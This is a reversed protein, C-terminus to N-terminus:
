SPEARPQVMAKLDKAHWEDFLRSYDGATKGQKWCDFAEVMVVFGM